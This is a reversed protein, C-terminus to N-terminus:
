EKISWQGNQDHCLTILKEGLNKRGNFGKYTLERCREDNNVVMATLTIDGRNGSKSSSWSQVAGLYNKQLTLKSAEAILEKDNTTLHGSKFFAGGVGTMFNMPAKIIGSFFGSVAGESASQGATRAVADAQSLIMPLEQRTTKVELLIAPLTHERLAQSELLVAPITQERLATSETILLPVTDKRLAESEILLAPITTSQLVDTAQLIAPISDRRLVTVETLVAPITDRRLAAVEALVAPIQARVAAVETIILPVQDSINAVEAILEPAVDRYVALTDAVKELSSLQQAFFVISASLCLVSGAIAYSGYSPQQDTSLKTM